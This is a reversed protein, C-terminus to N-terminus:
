KAAFKSPTFIDQNEHIAKVIASFYERPNVKNLRCSEVLSFLVANTKAGKPSHTGYWTKRGVVPRRMLREQSNNDIPLNKNKLFRTLEVYNNIFYNIAMVLSSKSSYSNRFKLAHREMSRFYLEQWQRHREFKKRKELAYIKGYCWIFFRAEEKYRQQAEIFKRRAHANCYLNQIEPLDIEKRKENAERVAKAYGSFVDSMLYKCLSNELVNSAVDGSRTDHAEYFCAKDTSFGWLYWHSKEAGELMRHTTEDAHIVENDLVEDKIQEYVPDLFEAVNHTVQILTNAPLDSAGGESAMKVYREVPILDSYKSLAVDVMMEDSYSSGPKIRPIAPATLLAGQCNSCRYKHRKQRVVHYRKPIVHLYESDETLGSDEMKGQCCPCTPATELVVDKEIIDLNPYRESTLYIRKKSDKKTQKTKQKTSMKESSKGFMKNRILITQEGLLFSLQEKALYKAHLAEIHKQQQAIVSTAEKYLEFLEDKSILDAKSTPIIPFLEQIKM